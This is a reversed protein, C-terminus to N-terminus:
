SHLIFNHLRSVQQFANAKNGLAATKLRDLIDMGGDGDGGIGVGEERGERGGRYNVDVGVGGGGVGMTLGIGSSSGELSSQTPLETLSRTLAAKRSRLYTDASNNVGSGTGGGGAGSGGSLGLTNSHYISNSNDIPAASFSASIGHPSSTFRNAAAAASSSSSPVGNSGSGSSGSNYANGAGTGTNGGSAGASGNRSNANFSANNNSNGSNNSIAPYHKFENPQKSLAFAPGLLKAARSKDELTIPADNFVKLYPLITCVYARLINAPDSESASPLV